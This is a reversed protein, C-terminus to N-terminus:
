FLPSETNRYYRHYRRYYKNFRNPYRSYFFFRLQNGPAFYRIYDYSEKYIDPNLSGVVRQRKLHHGTYLRAKKGLTRICCLKAKKTYSADPLALVAKSWEVGYIQFVGRPNRSNDKSISSEGIVDLGSWFVRVHDSEALTDFLISFCPFHAGKYKEFDAIGIINRSFIVAGPQVMRWGLDHLLSNKDEYMRAPIDMSWGNYNVIYLDPAQESLVDVVASLCAENLRNIDRIVWCYPTQPLKLATEFLDDRDLRKEQRIYSLGEYCGFYSEVVKRTNDSSCNDVILLRFRYARIKPIMDELMECLVVVQDCTPVCITLLDSNDLRM